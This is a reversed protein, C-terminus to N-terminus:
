IINYDKELQSIVKQNNEIFEKTVKEQWEERTMEALRRNSLVKYGLEEGLWNPKDFKNAEQENQFEIEATLLGELYGKYVDMEVKLNNEIPILIRIKNITNSIKRKALEEYQEKEIENEIEYKKAVNYNNNYEIDGKTKLTYIYNVKNNPYKEQIKRVRIITNIDKYIVNQEIDVIREIKMDKPLNDVAYKREIEQKMKFNGKRAKQWVIYKKM